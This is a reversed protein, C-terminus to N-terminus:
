NRHRRRSAARPNPFGRLTPSGGLSFARRESGTGRKGAVAECYEPAFGDHEFRAGPFHEPSEGGFTFGYERWFEPLRYLHCRACKGNHGFFDGREIKEM